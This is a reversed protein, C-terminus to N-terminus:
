AMSGRRRPNLVFLLASAYAGSASFDEFSLSEGRYHIDCRYGFQTTGLVLAPQNEGLLREELMERLQDERPIWVVETVFIHDLAWEVTGHFTIALKGRIPEAMITMNNIVFVQDTFGEMPLTFFDLVTPQWALGADKLDQAVTLTLM